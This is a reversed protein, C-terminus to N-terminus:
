HVIERLNGGISLMQLENGPKAQYRVAILAADTLCGLVVPQVQVVALACRGICLPWHVVSKCMM